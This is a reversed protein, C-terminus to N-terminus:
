LPAEFATPAAVERRHLLRKAVHKGLAVGPAEVLHYVIAAVLVTAAMVVVLFAHVTFRHLGPLAWAVVEQMVPGFLYVSYSITGLYGLVRGQLKLRTTLLVFLGIATLYSITYRYWTENFGYDASYALISVLPIAAVLVMLLPRVVRAAQADGERLRWLMGFYMVSLAPPLAVPLKMGTYWRAAAVLLALGIAGLATGFVVM